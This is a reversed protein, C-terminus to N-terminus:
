KSPTATPNIECNHFKHFPQGCDPCTIKLSEMIKVASGGPQRQGQEWKRLASTSCGVLSAFAPQSLGLSHRIEQIEAPTM